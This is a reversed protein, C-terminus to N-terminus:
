SKSRRFRQILNLFAMVIDISIEGIELFFCKICCTVLIYPVNQISTKTDVTFNM